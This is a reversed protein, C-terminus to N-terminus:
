KTLPPILYLQLFVPCVLKLSKKFIFVLRKNWYYGITNNTSKILINYISILKLDKTAKCCTTKAAAAPEKTATDHSRKLHITNVKLSFIDRLCAFNISTTMHNNPKSLQRGTNPAIFSFSVPNYLQASFKGCRKQLCIYVNNEKMKNQRMGTNNIAGNYKLIIKFNLSFLTVVPCSGSASMLLRFAAKFISSITTTEQANQTNGLWIINIRNSKLM